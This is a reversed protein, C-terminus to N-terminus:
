KFITDDKWVVFFIAQKGALLTFYCKKLFGSCLQVIVKIVKLTHSISGVYGKQCIMTCNTVSQIVTAQPYTVVTTLAVAM